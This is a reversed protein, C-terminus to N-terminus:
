SIAAVSSGRMRQVNETNNKCMQSCNSLLTSSLHTNLSGALNWPLPTCIQDSAITHVKSLRPCQKLMQQSVGKGPHPYLFTPSGYGGNGSKERIVHHGVSYPSEVM